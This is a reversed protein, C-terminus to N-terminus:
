LDPVDKPDCSDRTAFYGTLWARREDAGMSTLHRLAKRDAAYRALAEQDGQDRALKEFYATGLGDHVPALWGRVADDVRRARVDDLRADCPDSDAVSFAADYRWREPDSLKNRVIEQGYLLQPLDVTDEDRSHRESWREPLNGVGALKAALPRLAGTLEPLLGRHRTDVCVHPRIGTDCVQATTVPRTLADAQVLPLAALAALALPVLASWRRRAAHALVAACALGLLWGAMALPQWAVRAEDYLAAGWYPSLRPASGALALAAYAALGLVPATLQWPLRRGAAEGLLVAAVLYVADCLPGVASPRGGSTYPWSALLVLAISLAYAAVVWAALPLASMLFRALPARASSSWLEDTGRRRDLGGSWCGAALALPGAILVSFQHSLSQTENWMGQWASAKSGLAVLLTVALVAAAWRGLGHRLTARLAGAPPPAAVPDTVPRTSPPALSM